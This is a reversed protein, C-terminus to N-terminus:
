RCFVKKSTSILFSAGPEAGEAGKTWETEGRFSCCDKQVPAYLPQGPPTLRLRPAYVPPPWTGAPGGSAPPAGHSEDGLGFIGSEPLVARRVEPGDGGRGVMRGRVARHVAGRKQGRDVM